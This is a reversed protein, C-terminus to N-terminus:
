AQAAGPEVKISLTSTVLFTVKTIAVDKVNVGLSKALAAKIYPPAPQCRFGSSQFPIYM